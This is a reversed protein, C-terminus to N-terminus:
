QSMRDLHRYGGTNIMLTIFVSLNYCAHVITSAAVSRTRRRVYTLILSVVLLLGVAAWTYGLQAAHILAFLVSSLLGGVILAPRSLSDTSRWTAYAQPTRPLRMWDLAIAFAPFLFGRFTIEEFLPALLTGFFTLAWVVSANKFFEDMPISSPMTILNEAAQVAWGLVFGLPILRLALRRAASANWEIGALFSRDWLRSFLFWSALLTSVYALAMTALQLRQNQVAALMKDPSQISGAAVLVIAQSVFLLTGALALFLLAHGANPVRPLTEPLEAPPLSGLRFDPRLLDENM